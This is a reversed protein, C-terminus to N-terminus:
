SGPQPLKKYGIVLPLSLSVSGRLRTTETNFQRVRYEDCGERERECM